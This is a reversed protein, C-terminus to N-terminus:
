ALAAYAEQVQRHADYQQEETWREGKRLKPFKLTKYRVGTSLAIKSPENSAVHALAGQEDSSGVLRFGGDDSSTYLLPTHQM